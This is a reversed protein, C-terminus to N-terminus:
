PGASKWYNKVKWLWGGEQCANNFAAVFDDETKTVVGDCTDSVAAVNFWAMFGRRLCDQHDDGEGASVICPTNAWYREMEPLYISAVPDFDYIHFLVYGLTAPRLPM